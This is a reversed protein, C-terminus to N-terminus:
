EMERGERLRSADEQGHCPKNDNEQHACIVLWVERMCHNTDHESGEENQLVESSYQSGHISVVCVVSVVRVVRVVCWEGGEGCVVRVM